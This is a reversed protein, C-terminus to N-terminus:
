KGCSSRAATSRLNGTEAATIHGGDKLSRTAAVVCTMFEGHNNWSASCPCANSVTGFADFVLTASDIYTGLSDNSSVDDFQLRTTSATATVPYTFYQWM